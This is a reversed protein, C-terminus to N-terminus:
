TSSHLLLDSRRRRTHASVYTLKLLAAAKLDM